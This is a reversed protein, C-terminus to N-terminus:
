KDPPYGLGTFYDVLQQAVLQNGAPTHHIFDVYMGERGHEDFVKRLDLYHVHERGEAAQALTSNIDLILQEWMAVYGTFDKWHPLNANRAPDAGSYYFPDIPLLVVETEPGVQELWKPLQEKLYAILRDDPYAQHHERSFHRRAAVYYFLALAHPQPPEGGALRVQAWTVEPSWRERFQTLLSMDNAAQVTLLRTKVRPAVEIRYRAFSQRLNYSPVGANLVQGAYRQNLYASYTEDDGVGSGFPVSDGLCVIRTDPGPPPGRFGQEDIHVGSHDGPKLTYGREDDVPVAYGVKFQQTPAPQWVFRGQTLRFHVQLLLELGVVGLLSTIVVLALALQWRKPESEM